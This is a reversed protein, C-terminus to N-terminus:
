RIEDGSSSVASDACNSSFNEDCFDHIGMYKSIEEIVKKTQCIVGDHQYNYVPTALLHSTGQSVKFTWYHAKIKNLITLLPDITLLPKKTKPPM